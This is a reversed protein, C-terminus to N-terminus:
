KRYVGIFLTLPTVLIVIIQYLPSLTALFDKAFPRLVVAIGLSPITLAESILEIGHKPYDFAPMLTHVLTEDLDLVLCKKNPSLPLCVELSELECPLAPLVQDVYQFNARIEPTITIQYPPITSVQSFGEHSPTEACTGLSSKPFGSNSSPFSASSFLQPHDSRFPNNASKKLSSGLPIPRVLPRGSSLIPTKPLM